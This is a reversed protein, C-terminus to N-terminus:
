KIAYSTVGKKKYNTIQKAFYQVLPGNLLVIVVTMVHVQTFLKQTILGLGVALIFFSGEVIMKSLQLSHIRQDIGLMLREYPSASLGTTITVATGFSIAFISFVSMIIQIPLQNFLGVPILQFLMVWLDILFGILFLFLVSIWIDKTPIMFFSILAITLGTIISISGLSLPTILYVFYNFADVPSAGLGAFIIGVIGLSM